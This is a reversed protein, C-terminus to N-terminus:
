RGTVALLDGDRQVVAIDGDQDTRYVDAGADRLAELTEPAPHGYDNGQGVSVLALRAGLGTLLDLDQYRSGHHPVKLVDARLDAGAAVVARQSEPELDGTLLVRVGSTELMMAVSANNAVAGDPSDGPRVADVRAPWLVSWSVPGATRREGYSATRVPIGRVAALERVRRHEAVPAPYPGVEIEDVQRGALAGALGGAHDAHFHSLVLVPVHRVGLDRLCRDIPVPDPGTDVVVASGPAVRVVLGDGQGVDCAVLLWEGPPWGPPGVPRLVAIGVLAACAVTAV